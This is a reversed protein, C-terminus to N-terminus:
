CHALIESFPMYICISVTTVINPRWWWNLTIRQCFKGTFSKYETYIWNNLKTTLINENEELFCFNKFSIINHQIIHYMFNISQYAMM